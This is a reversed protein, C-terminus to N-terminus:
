AAVHRLGERLPETLREARIIGWELNGQEAGEVWHRLGVLMRETFDAAVKGALRERNRILEEGIRAYHTAMHATFPVFTEFRFGISAMQGRYFGVSGLSSLHIRDLIPRLNNVVARAAQMPDTFILRGGPKLVRWVESLIKARDEGHLFADQSWAVDFSQDPFPLEDFSGHVVEINRDLKQQATLTRNLANQTESVNLCTVHCGFTSALYRAAGGYGAGLDIVRADKGIPLIMDAMHAVTRRSATKVDETPSRYLGIHIDEGGWITSYFCDADASDYYQEATRTDHRPKIQLANKM